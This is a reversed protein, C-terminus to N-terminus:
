DEAGVVRGRAREAKRRGQRRAKEVRGGQQSGLRVVQVRCSWRPVEVKWSYPRLVRALNSMGGACSPKCASLAVALARGM